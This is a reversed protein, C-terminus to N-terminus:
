KSDPALIIRLITIQENDRSRIEWNLYYDPPMPSPLLTQVVALRNNGTYGGQAEDLLGGADPATNVAECPKDCIAVFRANPWSHDVLSMRVMVGPNKGESAPLSVQTWRVAPVSPLPNVIMPSGNIDGGACIGGPCNNAVTPAPLQTSQQAPKTPRPTTRARPQQQTFTYNNIEVDKGGSIVVGEGCAQETHMGNIHVGQAGKGIVMGTPCPPRPVKAFTYPPLGSATLRQNIWDEADLPLLNGNAYKERDPHTSKYAAVQEEVEPPLVHGPLLPGYSKTPVTPGPEPAMKPTPVRESREGGKVRARFFLYGVIVSIALVVIALLLARGKHIAKGNISVGQPDFLQPKNHQILGGVVLRATDNYSIWYLGAVTFIAIPLWNPIWELHGKALYTSFAIGAATAAIRPGIKGMNLRM